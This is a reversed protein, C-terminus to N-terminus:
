RSGAGFAASSGQSLPAQALQISAGRDLSYAVLSIFSSLIGTLIFVEVLLLRKPTGKMALIKIKEKVYKDPFVCSKICYRYIPTCGM